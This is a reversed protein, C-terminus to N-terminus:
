RRPRLRAQTGPHTTTPTPAPSADRPPTTTPSPASRGDRRRISGIRATKARRILSTRLLPQGSKAGPTTKSIDPTVTTTM